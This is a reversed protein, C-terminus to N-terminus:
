PTWGVTWGLTQQLVKARALTFFEAAAGQWVAAYLFKAGAANWSNSFNGGLQFTTGTMAGSFVPVIKEEDSCAFVSASGLRVIYPHVAGLPTVTGLADNAASNARLRPTSNVELAADADFTGGCTFLTRDGAPATVVQAYVLAMMPTSAVDAFTTNGFTEVADDTTEVALTSWGTVPQQYAVAGLAALDRAGIADVAAGSAEQLLYLADPAAVVLGAAALLLDWEAGSQPLYKTTNTADRTVGAIPSAGGSSRQGIRSGIRVGTSM